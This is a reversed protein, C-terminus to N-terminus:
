KEEEPIDAQVSNLIRQALSGREEPNGALIKEALTTMINRTM